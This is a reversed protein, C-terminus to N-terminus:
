AVVKVDLRLPTPGWGVPSLHVCIPSYRSSKPVPVVPLAGGEFSQCGKTGADKRVSTCAEFAHAGAGNKSCQPVHRAIVVPRLSQEASHNTPDIRPDELFRELHGRDHHWGLANRRRPQDRDQRRRDRLQDTLEQQLAKAATVVATATGDNYAQWWPLADQLRTNLGEGLNHAWGAEDGVRRQDGVPHSGSM